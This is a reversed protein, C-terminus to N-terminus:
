LAMVRKIEEAMLRGIRQNYAANPHSRAGLDDEGYDPLTFFSLRDMGGAQCRRVAEVGIEPMTQSGPLVWIIRAGPNCARVKKIFSVCKGILVETMEEVKEARRMGGVDNSLLRICM